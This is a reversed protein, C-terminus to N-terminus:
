MCAHMCFSFHAVIRCYRTVRCFSEVFVVNGECLGLIRFVLTAMAVPLCTGPGNCLVVHPRIRAVLYLAVVFSWLTTFTSSVYSQGVERSRPLAYIADPRRATNNADAAHQVRQLSTDDTSAVMYLLPAYMHANLNRILVLMETTHGGSGLVVLTKIPFVPRDHNLSARHRQITQFVFVTRLILTLVVLLIWFKWSSFFFAHMGDGAATMTNDVVIRFTHSSLHVLRRREISHDPELNNRAKKFIFGNRARREDNRLRRTRSGFWARSWRACSRTRHTAIPTPHM